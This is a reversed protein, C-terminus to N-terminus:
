GAANAERDLFPRVVRTVMGGLGQTAGDSSARVAYFDRGADGGETAAFVGYNLEGVSGNLKVAATVDGAGSGRQRALPPELQRGAARVHPEAGPVLEGAQAAGGIQFHDARVVALRGGYGIRVARCWAPPRVQM